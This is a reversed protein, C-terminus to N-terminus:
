GSSLRNTLCPRAQFSVHDDSCVSIVVYEVKFENDADRVVSTEDEDNKPDDDKQDGFRTPNDEGKFKDTKPHDV